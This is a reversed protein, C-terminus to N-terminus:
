GLDLSGGKSPLFSGCPGHHLVSCHQENLDLGVLGIQDLCERFTKIPNFFTCTDLDPNTYCNHTYAHPCAARAEKMCSVLKQLILMLNTQKASQM